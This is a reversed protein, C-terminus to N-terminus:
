DEFKRITKDQEAKRDLALQILQNILDSYELGTTKWLKPYMSIKTFGPLTNVESFYLADTHKDLLFDVRAMGAGDIAQYAKLAFEQVMRTQKDSLPAPIILEPEGNFYKDQYTYFIDDPIVEGPLSVIPYDNGLVSIEIERADIGREVLIRRDFKAAKLLAATLEERNNAKSIGVSSGLNAPKIFLPYPAVEESAEVISELNARIESRNFVSYELVPVGANQVVHKCVAKDMGVASALVGAGVYACGTIELLGQLTGDEGFTGHLIPFIVDIGSILQLQNSQQCYLNVQGAQNLLVANCLSETKGTEFSTLAEPGYLWAGDQTIGIQHIEYKDPDLVSLVSRASMLSVAHEGSRGGFILGLNIKNNM